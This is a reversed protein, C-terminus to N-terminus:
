SPGQPVSECAHIYRLAFDKRAPWGTDAWDWDSVRDDSDASVGTVKSFHSGSFFASSPGGSSGVAYNFGVFRAAVDHLTFEGEEIGKRVAAQLEDLLGSEEVLWYLYPTGTEDSNNSSDGRRLDALLMPLIQQVERRLADHLARQTEPQLGELRSCATSIVRARRLTSRCFSLGSDVDEEPNADLLLRLLNAMWRTAQDLTSTWSTVRDEFIDILKMGAILLEASLPGDSSEGRSWLEGIDPYRARIKRLALTVREDDEVTLLAGLETDDGDAARTLARTILSDPIDGEPIMQALYRDFYDPHAFRGAPVRVANKDGVVPFLTRLVGAADQRDRGAAVTELLQDWDTAPHENRFTLQGTVGRTLESKWRQLEAFLDPFTVRLFTTLILDLDNMEDVDHIRFQERVQALFREIARPTSLQSPLATELIQGFRHRDPSMAVREPTLIGTLGLDLMKIIKGTLLPPVSLPYQVIKEMFARARAKSVHGRAPDQLTEVLTKDDYALIFDVGPFRGLLRVVKLLDLLEVPQLRDIDDVIVLIPTELLRLEEAVEAFAVNWPKQFRKEITHSAESVAAGVVPIIAAIPRAIDAYAAIRDRLRRSGEVGPAATSLVAFFEEFLGETGATAWPTFEVVRWRDSDQTSLFATILAIVSSKGSGWPGELGYVVSTESSHNRDILRAAHQAFPTRHLRDQEVSAIPDDRWGSRQDQFGVM